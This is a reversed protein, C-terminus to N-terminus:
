LNEVLIESTIEFDYHTSMSTGCCLEYLVDKPRVTIGTVIRPMNDKDTKLYVMEKVNFKNDVTIM